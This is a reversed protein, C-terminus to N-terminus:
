EVVEFFGMWGLEAFETKHAHFMFSGPYPFRLECIGRQGQAQMITDTFEAPELRTGTPYYEFFNGHIHFSNIPDYELVNVLYIRVLENRKVRVPEHVYHFPIGNVAYLQNGEGDFTTNFGHMVMVLEDAPARPTPPDIIFTGYLGRAIHEALPSVHCHYLHLGFPRADFAYTFSEGPDIVGPGAGPVGDMDAPHLGHFHITHPHDSGNTFKFRLEDGETCRLTPGPIRGNFTWAPFRVGPAVELEEDSSAIEYTRLTRGDPLTSVVGYDFDRLVDTPNFGNFRHDVTAGLRFTPGEVGGGHSMGTTQSHGPGHGQGSAVIAPVAAAGAAGLLAGGALFQRRSAAVM